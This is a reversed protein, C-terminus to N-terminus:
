DVFWCGLLVIVVLYVVRFYIFVVDLNGIYRCDLVILLWVCCDFLGCIVGVFLCGVFGVGLCLLVAIDAVFGCLCILGM